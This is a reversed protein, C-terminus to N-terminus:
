YERKQKAEDMPPPAAAAASHLGGEGEREGELEEASGQKVPLRGRYQVASCQM